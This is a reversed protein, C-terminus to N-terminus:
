KLINFKPNNIFNMATGLTGIEKNKVLGSANTKEEVPAGTFKKAASAVVKTPANSVKSTDAKQSPTFSPEKGTLDKVQSAENKSELGMEVEGEEKSGNGKKIEEFLQAIDVRLQNVQEELADLRSAEDQMKQEKEVQAIPDKEEYTKEDSANPGDVKVENVALETNEMNNETKSAEIKKAGYNEELNMSTIVGDKTTIFYRKNGGNLGSPLYVTHDADAAPVKTGDEKVVFMVHGNDFFDAMVASGDELKGYFPGGANANALAVEKEVGLMKMINGLIQKSDM